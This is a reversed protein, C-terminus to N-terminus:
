PLLRLKLKLTQSSPDGGTPTFTVTPTLKVQGTRLLKARKAGKARIVLKVTGPAGVSKASSAGAARVGRGSVKLEGPNPVRATVRATGKRKDYKAYSLTFSNSPSVVASVNIDKESLAMFAGSEGDLLNGPRALPAEVPDFFYCATSAPIASNIGIVDGVQVPIKAPFTNLTSPTLNRPGDSGVVTYTAPDATKRFVKFTLPGPASAANHSWSSIVLDSAPPLPPVVYGTGSTVTPELLDTTSGTCSVSPSPALRGITTSAAASSATGILGLAALSCAM